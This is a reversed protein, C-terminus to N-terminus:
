ERMEMEVAQGLEEVDGLKRKRPSEAGGVAEDDATWEAVEWDVRVTGARNMRSGKARRLTGLRSGSFPHHDFLVQALEQSTNPPLSVEYRNRGCDCRGTLIRPYSM